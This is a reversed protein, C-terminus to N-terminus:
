SVFIHVVYWAGDSLCTDSPCVGKTVFGVGAAAAECDSNYTVGDCGCVPAWIDVCAQPRTACKGEGKCGRRLCYESSSCDSNVTCNDSAIIIKKDSALSQIM